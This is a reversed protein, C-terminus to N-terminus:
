SSIKEFLLKTFLRYNQPANFLNNWSNRAHKKASSMREPHLVLSAIAQSIDHPTPQDPLLVGNDENVIESVGGVNTAITPIGCAQAEMLSVPLGETESMLLFLDPQLDKYCKFVEKNPLSGIFSWNVWPPLYKSAYSALQQRLPGDGIHRWEIKTDPHKRAFSSIGDIQLHLRKLPVMHSCSVLTFIGNPAKQVVFGPDEIGLRSLVAKHTLDPFRKQLYDQGHNSIMFLADIKELSSQRYPIYPPYYDEEYLDFGHARSVVQIRPFQKKLSALGTTHDYFWYTYFLADQLEPHEKLYGRLWSVCRSAESSYSMLKKLYATKKPAHWLEKYFSPYLLANITKHALSPLDKGRHTKAFATEVIVGEPVERLSGSIVNPIVVIHDFVEKLYRIETELFLEMEGFPYYHTFLVLPRKSM